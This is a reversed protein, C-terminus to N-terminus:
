WNYNRHGIIEVSNYHSAWDNINTWDDKLFAALAEDITIGKSLCEEYFNCGQAEGFQQPNVRVFTMMLRYPSEQNTFCDQFEKIISLAEKENSTVISFREDYDDKSSQSEVFILTVGHSGPVGFQYDISTM